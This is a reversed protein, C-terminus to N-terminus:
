KRKGFASLIMLHMINLYLYSTDKVQWIEVGNGFFLTILTTKINLQERM